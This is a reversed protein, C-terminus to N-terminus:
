WGVMDRLVFPNIDSIPCDSAKVEIVANNDISLFSINFVIDGLSDKGYLSEMLSLWKNLKRKESSDLTVVNIIDRYKTSSM